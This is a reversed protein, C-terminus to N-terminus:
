RRTAGDVHSSGTAGLVILTKTGTVGETRRIRDIVHKLHGLDGVRLRLLADTDVRWRSRRSWSPFTSSPMTSTTSRREQGRVQARCLGRDHQRAERSRHGGPLRRDGRAERAQRDKAERRGAVPESATRGREGITPRGRYSARPCEHRDCRASNAAGGSQLSKPTIGAIDQEQNAITRLFGGFIAAPCAFEGRPARRFVGARPRRPARCRRERRARAAPATAPPESRRSRSGRAASPRRASPRRGGPTTPTSPSASSPATDPRGGRRPGPRPSAARRAPAARSRTGARAARGSTGSAAARSRRGATTDTASSPDTDRDVVRGARDAEPRGRREEARKGVAEDCDRKPAEVPPRKM